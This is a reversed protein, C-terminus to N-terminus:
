SGEKIWAKQYVARNAMTERTMMLTSAKATAQARVWPMLPLLRKRVTNKM